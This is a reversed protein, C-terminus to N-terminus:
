LGNYACKSDVIVARWGILLYLGSKILVSCRSRAQWHDSVIILQTILQMWNSVNNEFLSLRIYVVVAESMTTIFSVNNIGWDFIEHISLMEYTFKTQDPFKSLILSIRAVYFREHRKVKSRSVLQICTSRPLMMNFKSIIRDNKLTKLCVFLVHGTM